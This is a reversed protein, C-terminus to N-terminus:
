LSFSSCFLLIGSLQFLCVFLCVTAFYTTITVLISIILCACVCLWPPRCHTWLAVMIPMCHRWVIKKKILCAAYKWCDLLLFLTNRQGTFSVAYWTKNISLLWFWRWCWGTQLFIFDFHTPTTTPLWITLLWNFSRTSASVTILTM